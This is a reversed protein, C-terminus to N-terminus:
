LISGSKIGAIKHNILSIKSWQKTQSLIDRVEQKSRSGLDSGNVSLNYVDCGALHLRHCVKHAKLEAGSDFAVIVTCRNQKLQKYLKCSAPLSSGLVPITNDPCKVADFVGEVLIIPKDWDIDIENFIVNRKPIRANKYKFKTEDIFRATYFNFEGETDFSPFIATRRFRYKNSVCVRWRYLDMRSLGRSQLYTLVDRADPDQSAQALLVLDDPLDPTQIQEEVQVTQISNNEPFLQRCAETRNPAFKRFLFNLNKGSLGCVWCHFWGDALQIYLKKKSTRKDKCKPCCMLFNIGDINLCGSGFASELLQIKKSREQIM